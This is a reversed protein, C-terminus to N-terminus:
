QWALARRSGHGEKADEGHFSGAPEAEGRVQRLRVQLFDGATILICICIYIYIYYTYIYKYIYM